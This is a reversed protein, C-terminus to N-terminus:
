ITNRDSSHAKEHLLLAFLHGIPLSQPGITTNTTDSVSLTLISPSLSITLPRMPTLHIQLSVSCCYDLADASCLVGVCHECQNAQPYLYLFLQILLTTCYHQYRKENVSGAEWKTMHKLSSLIFILNFWYYIPQYVPIAVWWVCISLSM